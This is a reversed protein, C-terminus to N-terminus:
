APGHQGRRSRRISPGALLQAAASLTEVHSDQVPGALQSLKKLQLLLDPSSVAPNSAAAAAQLQDVELPGHGPTGIAVSAAAGDESQPQSKGRKRATSQPSGKRKKSGNRATPARPSNTDGAGNAPAAPSAAVAPAAVEAADTAQGGAPASGGASPGAAAQSRGAHEAHAAPAETAALADALLSQAAMQAVGEDTLPAPLNEPPLAPLPAGHPAPPKRRTSGTGTGQSRQELAAHLAHAAARWEALETSYAQTCSAQRQHCQSDAPLLCIHALVAVDHDKKLLAHQCVRLTVVQAHQHTSWSLRHLHCYRKCVKVAACLNALEAAKKDRSRKAAERNNHMRRTKRLAEVDPMGPTSIAHEAPTAAALAPQSYAAQAEAHGAPQLTASKRM